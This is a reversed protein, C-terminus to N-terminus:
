FLSLPDSTRPSITASCSRHKIYAERFFTYNPRAWQEKSVLSCATTTTPQITFGTRIRCCRVSSPVCNWFNIGTRTPDLWGASRSEWGALMVSVSRTVSAFEILWRVFAPLSWLKQSLVDQLIQKDLCLDAVLSELRRNEEEMSLLDASQNGTEPVGREESYWVRSGTAVALNDAWEPISVEEAEFDGRRSPSIEIEIKENVISWNSPSLGYVDVHSAACRWCFAGVTNHM